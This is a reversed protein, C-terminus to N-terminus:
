HSMGWISVKKQTEIQEKIITEIDKMAINRAANLDANTRHNCNTCHFIDQSQRSAKDIIGCKHCRQSTHKPDILIVDIGVAEAKYKIKEQLDYYSWNKLFTNDKSIGSLDEIQIIGCDNKLATDIIHKSYRHNTTERFREIKNGIDSVPKLLTKQGHGKRNHSCYKLQNRKSIRDNETRARFRTIEGGNIFEHKPTQDIQMTVAKAVGLDIGLIKNKDVASQKPTDDASKFSLQLYVDKGDLSFRSDCLIYEGSILRNMVINAHGKRSAVKLKIPYSNGKKKINHFNAGDKNLVAITITEKDIIKIQRSRIPIPQGRKFSPVSATGKFIDKQVKKYTEIAEKILGPTMESHWLTENRKFQKQIFKDNQILDNTYEIVQPKIYSDISKYGYTKLRLDGNFKNNPNLRNHEAERQLTDRYLTIAYNKIRWSLTDFERIIQGFLPWEIDVPKVVKLKIVKVIPIM